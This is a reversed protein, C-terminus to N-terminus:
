RRERVVQPMSTNLRACSRVRSGMRDPNYAFREISVQGPTDPNRPLDGGVGLAPVVRDVKFTLKRRGAREVQVSWRKGSDGAEKEISVAAVSTWVSLELPYAYSELWDALKLASIYVPWSPSFRFDTSQM